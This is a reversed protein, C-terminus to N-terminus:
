FFLFCSSSGSLANENIADRDHRLHLLFRSAASSRGSIASPEAHSEEHLDFEGDARFARPDVCAPPLALHDERAVDIRAAGITEIDHDIIGNDM